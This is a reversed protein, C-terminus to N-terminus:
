LGTFNRAVWFFVDNDASQPMVPEVLWKKDVQLPNEIDM